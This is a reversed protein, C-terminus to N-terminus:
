RAIPGAPSARAGLGEALVAGQHTHGNPHCGSFKHKHPPPRPPCAHVHICLLGYACDYMHKRLSALQGLHVIYTLFFCIAGQGGSMGLVCPFAVLLTNKPTSIQTGRVIAPGHAHTHAHTLMHTNTNPLHDGMCLLLLADTFCQRCCQFMASLM